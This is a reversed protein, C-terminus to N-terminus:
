ITLLIIIIDSTVTACERKVFYLIEFFHVNIVKSKQIMVYDPIM